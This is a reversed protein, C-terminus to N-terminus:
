SLTVGRTFGLIAPLYINMGSFITNIPISGNGYILFFLGLQSINNLPIIIGNPDNYIMIFRRDAWSGAAADAGAGADAAGGGAGVQRRREGTGRGRGRLAAGRGAQRASACRFGGPVGQAFDSFLCFFSPKGMRIQPFCKFKRNSFPSKPPNKRFCSTKLYFLQSEPVACWIKVSFIM